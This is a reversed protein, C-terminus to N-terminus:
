KKNRLYFTKKGKKLKYIYSINGKINLRGSRSAYYLFDSSQYIFPILIRQLFSSPSFDRLRSNGFVNKYSLKVKIFKIIKLPIGSARYSIALFVRLMIILHVLMTFSINRWSQNDIYILYPHRCKTPFM